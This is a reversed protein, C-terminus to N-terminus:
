HQWGLEEQCRAASSGQLDCCVDVLGKPVHLIHSQPLLAGKGGVQLSACGSPGEGAKFGQGPLWDKAGLCDQAADRQALAGGSM